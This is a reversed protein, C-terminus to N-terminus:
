ILDGEFLYGIATSTPWGASFVNPTQGAPVAHDIPGSAFSSRLTDYQLGALNANNAAGSLGLAWVGSPQVGVWIFFTKIYLTRGVPVTYSTANYQGGTGLTTISGEVQIKAM